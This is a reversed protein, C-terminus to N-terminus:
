WLWSLSRMESFLALRHRKFVKNFNERLHLSVEKIRALLPQLWDSIVEVHGDFFTVVPARAISAGRVRCHM